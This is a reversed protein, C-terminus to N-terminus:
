HVLDKPLKQISKSRNVLMPLRNQLSGPLIPACSHLLPSPCLAPHVQLELLSSVETPIWWTNRCSRAKSSPRAKL